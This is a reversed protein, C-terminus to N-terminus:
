LFLVVPQQMGDPLSRAPYVTFRRDQFSGPYEEALQASVRALDARAQELRIGSQLRGTGELWGWSRRERSLGTGRIADHMSLPVWVDVPFSPHAGPFSAPVVGVVELRSGNFDILQGLIGATAGFRNRWLRESLVVVPHAGETLDDSDQLVRGRIAPIRIVDFYNGAVLEVEVAIADLGEGLFATVRHHAALAEFSNSRDRADRYNPYSFNDASFDASSATFRVIRDPEPVELSRWLLTAAFNLVATNAGIGLALVLVALGSFGPQRKVQRLAYRFDRILHELPGVGSSHSDPQHPPHSGGVLRSSSLRLRAANWFVDLFCRLRARSRALLPRTALATEIELYTELMESGYRRRHWAPFFCLLLQLVGVIPTKQSKM